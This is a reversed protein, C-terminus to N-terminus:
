TYVPDCKLNWARIKKQPQFVVVRRRRPMEDGLEPDVVPPLQPVGAELEEILAREKRIRPQLPIRYPHPTYLACRSHATDPQLSTSVAAAPTRVRQFFWVGAYGTLHSSILTVLIRLFV